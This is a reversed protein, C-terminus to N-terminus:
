AVWRGDSSVMPQAGAPGLEVVSLRRHGLIVGRDPDSWLGSADPGRPTLAATMRDVQRELAEAGTVRRPDFLGAIGCMPDPGRGTRPRTRGAWAREGAAGQSSWPSIM